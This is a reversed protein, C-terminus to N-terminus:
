SLTSQRATLARVGAVLRDLEADTNYYHASARVIADGLKRDEFDARSWSAPSVSVNVGDARLAGAVDAAARGEVSFTV